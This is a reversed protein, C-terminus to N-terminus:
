AGHCKKFKKGSGCWCPDNRGITEHADVRRQAVVPPAEEAPPEGPEGYASPQDDLTGGSYALAGMGSTMQPPPAFEPQPAAPDPVPSGDGNPGQVEVQVNYIMRAFDSWISNMLDEFLTFAENKYAVLPEIQAFGRLHIGERLYDMDYLHERWRQDIIQLVLYRELARMLEEGLEEEREDYLGMADDVLLRKLQERDTQSRDIEEAGFDVHYIQELQVWLEELDWDDVFDGPTYEDVLRGIVAEIQERAVESMDRGELVEDRYKYVVERQQNMVDDYELVRKRILYNQEEVKRQAGEIQKTLMKAEIPEEEGSDDKPGLRDLIRYIRDGAFLRVLDDEASLFFRSEGPDGQRGARGRLQNDIRRSEHRETGIIYLGGAEEVIQRDAEVREEMKPLIDAFRDDYDPDGPRLGLKNLEIQTLHEPNGGLKIDVGRGAMNTAITVAGPRGAEAITEGERQAFEPKANLVTHPIGVKRLRASLLESVEVSITGVLIPQQADHRAQIERVVARWKGEKTKYIQDNQDKRIMPRNTPIEVVGVKYIKNLETAETLATGSMGALKDYMRFYNQLTVTALTQNEERVHVGEKAEVAQHLGESWRRGDLIRGTFEDIIKVEGDVVAYDVDKKYLSEAKLAQHLHNVLTGNEARYMNDIGLFKEAKAVGRETVSITKHKEDFEYDYDATFEKKARPDMGDPKKGPEMMPALKAFREYLDAAQEPAGSIILPTRAEDILINDVEDVIAFNHMAVPKGDEGIRGGHQVKEELTTAMNDRLYDFGFESNTGYTIDAAYAARKEEYPQNNQLIGVTLGLGEYIPRMWNADRSALYDNVTVVHVGKGALANLTVALTGTLTKGEGTRMEAISGGHLVMGGILQVDFHRMNMKRRGVERTLAFAEPLVEDLSEGEEQVRERLEAFREKIEDDELQEIEAEWANIREVRKEYAKFQKAEGLRLARELISM